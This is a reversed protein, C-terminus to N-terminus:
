KEKPELHKANYLRKRTRSTAIYYGRLMVMDRESYEGKELVTTVARNLDNEIYVDSYALGKLSFFTGVTIAKSAKVKKATAFVDFINVGKSRFSILVKISNKIEEDKVETSLYNQFSKFRTGTKRFAKYENELFKYKKQYVQKGTAATVIALMCAFIEPIPRTLTYAKGEQHLENIRLVIEANTSTIYATLGDEIASDTGIFKFDRSLNEQGFKEIKKAIEIDCRFTKTLTLLEEKPVNKFANITNTFQSYCNQLRDGVIIKYDCDILKFIELAVASIDQAEDIAVMDYKIEILGQELALHTHKLLYDFTVPIEGNAMKDIYKIAVKTLDDDELLKELFEEIDTSNSIFFARVANIISLKTPYDYDEEICLYSFDEVKKPKVVSYGLAHFTKCEINPPTQEDMESVIGKNYASYFAKKPKISNFIYKLTSSKGSGAVASVYIIEGAGKSAIIRKLIEEQEPTQNYNM